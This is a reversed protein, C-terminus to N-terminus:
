FIPIKDRPVHFLGDDLTMLMLFTFFLGAASLMHWIDHNDSLNGIVCEENINRSQAPTLLSSYQVRNFYYLAPVWCVVAVFAYLIPKWTFQEQKPLLM